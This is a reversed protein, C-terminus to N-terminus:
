HSVFRLVLNFHVASTKFLCFYAAFRIAVVACSDVTWLQWPPRVTRYVIGESYVSARFAGQKRRHRNAHVDRKEVGDQGIESWKCVPGM